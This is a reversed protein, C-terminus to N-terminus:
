SSTWARNERAKARVIILASGSPLEAM